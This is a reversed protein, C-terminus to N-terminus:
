EMKGQVIQSPFYKVFPSDFWYLKRVKVQEAVFDFPAIMSRAGLLGYGSQQSWTIGTPKNNSTLFENVQLFMNESAPGDALWPVSEFKGGVNFVDRRQVEYNTINNKDDTGLAIYWQKNVTDVSLSVVSRDSIDTHSIVMTGLDIEYAGTQMQLRSNQSRHVLIAKNDFQAYQYIAFNVYDKSDLGLGATNLPVYTGKACTAVDQMIYFGLDNDNVRFLLFLHGSENEFMAIPREVNVNQFVDKFSPKTMNCSKIMKAQSVDTQTVWCESPLGYGARRCNVTYVMRGESMVQMQDDDMANGQGPLEVKTNTMAKLDFVRLQVSTFDVTRVDVLVGDLTSAAALCLLLVFAAIM